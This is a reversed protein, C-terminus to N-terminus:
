GAAALANAVECFGQWAVRITLLALGELLALHFHIKM